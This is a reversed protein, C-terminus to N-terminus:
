PTFGPTWTGLARVPQAMKREGFILVLFYFLINRVHEHSIHGQQMHKCVCTSPVLQCQHKGQNSEVQYLSAPDRVRVWLERVLGGVWSSTQFDETLRGLAPFIPLDGHGGPLYIHRSHIQSLLHNEWQAMGGAGVCDRSSDSDRTHKVPKKM